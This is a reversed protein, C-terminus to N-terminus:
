DETDDNDDEDITETVDDQPSEDDDTDSACGALLATAILAATITRTAKM